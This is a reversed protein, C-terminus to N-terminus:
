SAYIFKLNSLIYRKEGNTYFKYFLYLAKVSDSAHLLASDSTNGLEPLGSDVKTCGQQLAVAELFPLAVLERSM